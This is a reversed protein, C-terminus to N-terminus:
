RPATSGGGSSRPRLLARRGGRDPARRDAVARRALRRQLRLDGGPLPLDGDGLTWAILGATIALFEGAGRFGSVVLAGLIFSILLIDGLPYALNTLVAAPDGKTLGILAPALLAIGVSAAALGGIAGDLWSAATFHGIRRKILLAIGVYFCPLAALYGVDAASPYPLREHRRLVDADLLPRRRDLFCGSASRSGPPGSTACSRRRADFCTLSALVLARTTSGSDAADELAAPEGAAIFGAYALACAASAALLAWVAAADASSRTGPAM